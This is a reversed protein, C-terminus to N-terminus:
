WKFRIAGDDEEAVPPSVKEYTKQAPALQKLQIASAPTRGESGKGKTEALPLPGDEPDDPYLSKPAEDLTFPLYEKGKLPRDAIVIKDYENGRTEVRYAFIKDEYKRDLVARRIYVRDPESKFRYGVVMVPQAGETQHLKVGIGKLSGGPYSHFEMRDGETEDIWSIADVKHGSKGSGDLTDYGAAHSSLTSLGLLLFIAVFIRFRKASIFNQSGGM